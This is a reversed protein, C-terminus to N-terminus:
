SHYLHNTGTTQLVAFRAFLEEAYWHRQATQAIVRGHAAGRYAFATLAAMSDWMSFTGQLGVPAEGIGLSWRLGPAEQVAAAVPPV